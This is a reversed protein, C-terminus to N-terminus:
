TAQRNSGIPRCRLAKSLRLRRILGRAVGNTIAECAMVSSFNVGRMARARTLVLDAADALGLHTSELVEHDALERRKTEVHERFMPAVHSDWKQESQSCIRVAECVVIANSEDRM